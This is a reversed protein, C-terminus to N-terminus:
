DMASSDKKVPTNKFAPQTTARIALTSMADSGEAVIEIADSVKMPEPFVYHHMVLGDIMGAGGRRITRLNVDGQFVLINDVLSNENAPEVLRLERSRGPRSLPLRGTLKQYTREDSWDEEVGFTVALPKTGILWTKRNAGISPNLTRGVSFLTEVIRYPPAEEWVKERYAADELRDRLDGDPEGPTGDAEELLVSKAPFSLAGAKDQLVVKTAHRISGDEVFRVLPGVEALKPYQACGSMFLIILCIFNMSVEKM